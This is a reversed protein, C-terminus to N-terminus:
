ATEGFNAVIAEGNQRFVDLVSGDRESRAIRRPQRHIIEPLWEVPGAEHPGKRKQSPQPMRAM